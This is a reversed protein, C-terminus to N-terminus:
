PLCPLVRFPCLFLLGKGHGETDETSLLDAGWGPQPLAAQHQDTPLAKEMNAEIQAM